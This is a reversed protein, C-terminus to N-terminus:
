CGHLNITTLSGSNFFFSESIAFFTVIKPGSIVSEDTTIATIEDLTNKLEVQQHLTYVVGDDQLLSPIVKDAAHLVDSVPLPM